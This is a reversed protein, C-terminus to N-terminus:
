RCVKKVSTACIGQRSFLRFISDSGLKDFFDSANVLKKCAEFLPMDFHNELIQRTLKIPGRKEVHIDENKQSSKRRPFVCHNGDMGKQHVASDLTYAINREIFDTSPIELAEWHGYLPPLSSSTSVVSTFFRSTDCFQASRM